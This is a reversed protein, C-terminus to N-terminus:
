GSEASTSARVAESLVPEWRMGADQSRLIMGTQGVIFGVRGGPAFSVDRMFTFIDPFRDDGGPSWTQGGDESFRALGKEGVAVARGGSAAVSFLAQKRDTDRYLWSRGGDASQLIVGGLGAILGEKANAFRITFLYPNQIVRVRVGPLGKDRGDLYRSLFEPDDELFDEYDWPPQGRMRLRDSNIGADELVSRVEQARAEMIEFLETPDEGRGFNRIERANSVPEVAVNLHASDAVSAAFAELQPVADAPIDTVNYEFEIPPVEVSGEIKAREWTAGLDDSFFIYGFEGILWCHREPPRLCTVSNLSVDEYVKEGRRVKDQEVPALWVFQPHQEDITLSHDVWTKGGDETKIRSGWVGVAWATQADLAYVGFLDSGEGVKLNDQATWTQGGDETRLVLGRQGVAWGVKGDAMSVNYLSALTNTEGKRWSNGGDATWYAAGYYGVAVAHQDDAASVSFLHDLIDIEGEGYPNELHVQHCGCLGLAFAAFLLGLARTSRLM